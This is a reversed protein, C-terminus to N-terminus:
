AKGPQAMEVETRTFHVNEKFSQDLDQPFAYM